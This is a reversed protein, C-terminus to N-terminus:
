FNAQSSFTDALDFGLGGDGGGGVGRWFTSSVPNVGPKPLVGAGIRM